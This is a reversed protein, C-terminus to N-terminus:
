LLRISGVVRAVGYIEDKPVEFPVYSENDSVLKLCSSDSGPLIRKVMLGREEASVLYIQNWCIRNYSHVLSCAVIDGHYIQPEMSDGHVEILFDVGRNRFRPIINYEAIDSDLIRFSEGFPGGAASQSVLPIAGPVKRSVKRNGESSHTMTEALSVPKHSRVPQVAASAESSVKLMEGEGTFLWNPNLDPCVQLIKEITTLSMKSQGSWVKGLLGVSLGAMVTLKNDNLGKVLTYEKLRDISSSM